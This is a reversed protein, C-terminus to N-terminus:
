IKKPPAFKPLLVVDIVQIVGNTALVDPKVINATGGDAGTVTFKGNMETFNLLEPETTPCLTKCQKLGPLDKVLYKGPTLHYYVVSRLIAPDNMINDLAKKPLKAFAEDTPAFLTFPGAMQKLQGVNAKDVAALFTKFNGMAKLTDYMTMPQQANGMGLPVMVLLMALIVVRLKM